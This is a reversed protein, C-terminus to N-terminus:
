APSRRRARSGRFLTRTARGITTLMPYMRAPMARYVVRRALNAPTPDHLTMTTLRALHAADEAPDGAIRSKLYLMHRFTFEGAVARRIARAELSDRGFMTAAIRDFGEIGLAARAVVGGRAFSDNGGRRALVPAALCKLRAGQKVLTLLRPVHAWASGVFHEDLPVSLWAGRAVVISGIFSFFAATTRALAFYRARTGPVAFDFEADTNLALGHHVREFEMKFGHEQHACLLLQFGADLHGLVRALAGELMIDDASFLWVYRGRSLEVVRAMDRDIGGRAPQRHYVIQPHSTQWGTVVAATDDTSGGDLIVIEVGPQLQRAISALTEGIFAGFNYTPIAISLAIQPETSM